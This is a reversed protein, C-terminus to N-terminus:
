MRVDFRFEEFHVVGGACLCLTLLIGGDVASPVAGFSLMVPMLLVAAGGWIFKLWLLILVKCLISKCEFFLTIHESLHSRFVFLFLTITFELMEVGAREGRKYLSGASDNAAQSHFM